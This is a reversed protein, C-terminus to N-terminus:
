QELEREPARAAECGGMPCRRRRQSARCTVSTVLVAHDRRRRRSVASKWSPAPLAQPTRCAAAKGPVEVEEAQLLARRQGCAAAASRTRAPPEVNAKLCSARTVVAAERLVTMALRGWNGM